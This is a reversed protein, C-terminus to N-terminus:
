SLGTVAKCIICVAVAVIIGVVIAVGLAIVGYLYAADDGDDKVGAATTAAPLGEQRDTEKNGGLCV